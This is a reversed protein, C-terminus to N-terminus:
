NKDKVAKKIGDIPCSIATVKKYGIRQLQEASFLARVGTACHIYIVQEANPYLDSMKMELLGRPINITGDIPNEAVESPERVDIIIGGNQKAESFAHIATTLKVQEKIESAIAQITKLM